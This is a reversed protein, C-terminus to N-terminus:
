VVELDMRSDEVVEARTATAGTEEVETEVAREGEVETETAGIEEVVM